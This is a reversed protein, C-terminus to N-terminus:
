KQWAFGGYPHMALIDTTRVWNGVADLSAMVVGEHQQEGFTARLVARRSQESGVLNDFREHGSEPNEFHPPQYETTM